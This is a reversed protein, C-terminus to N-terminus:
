HCHRENAKVGAQKTKIDNSENTHCDNNRHEVVLNIGDLTAINVTEGPQLIDTSCASWLEGEARVLYQARHGPSLKSVVEAEAHLLGEAGNDIPKKMSNVILWYLLGSILVIVVYFSIAFSLPTLWFIPLTLVPM